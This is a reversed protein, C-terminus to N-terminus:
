ELEMRRVDFAASDLEARYAEVLAAVDAPFVHELVGVSRDNHFPVDVHEASVVNVSVTACAPCRVALGLLGRRAAPAVLRFSSPFVPRSREEPYCFFSWPWQGLGIHRAALDGLERATPEVRDTMLNLFVGEGAGLPEWDLDGHPVLAVHENGCPCAFRVSFVAPRAAGPLQELTRFASLRVRVHGLAPCSFTYAATLADYM